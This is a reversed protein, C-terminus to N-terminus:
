IEMGSKRNLILKTKDVSPYWTHNKDPVTMWNFPINKLKEEINVYPTKGMLPQEPHVFSLKEFDKAYFDVHSPKVLDTGATSYFTVLRDIPAMVSLLEMPVQRSIIPANPFVSQWNTQERPHPKVVFEDAPYNSMIDSYFSRKQQETMINDESLPQTVLVIKKTSLLNLTQKDLHFAKGILQKEEETKQNWLAKLNMKQVLPHNNIMSLQTAIQTSTMYGNFQNNEFYKPFNQLDSLGDSVAITPYKLAIVKGTFHGISQANIYCNETDKGCFTEICRLIDNTTKDAKDENGLNPAALKVPLNAHSVSPGLIFMTTNIKDTNQLLYLFLSYTSNGIFVQKKM